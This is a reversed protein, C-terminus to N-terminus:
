ARFTRTEQGDKAASGESLVVHGALQRALPGVPPSGFSFRASRYTGTVGDGVALETAGAMLDTSWPELMQGLANGAQYHGPHAHASSLGLFRQAYEWDHRVPRTVLPPAGDFYYLSGTALLVRTLTVSWGAGTTFASQAGAELEIRTALTVRDGGTSSSGCGELLVAGCLGAGSSALGVVLLLLARRPSMRNKRFHM